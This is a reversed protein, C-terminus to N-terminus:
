SPKKKASQPLQPYKQLQHKMAEQNTAWRLNTHANNTKNHDLHIVKTKLPDENPIFTEAVLKHIYFRQPGQKTMINARLYGGSLTGTIVKTVQGRSSTLEGQDSLQYKINAPFKHNKLKIEKKM